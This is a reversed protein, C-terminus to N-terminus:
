ACRQYWAGDAYHTCALWLGARLALGPLAAQPCTM